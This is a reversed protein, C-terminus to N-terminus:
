QVRSLPSKLGGSLSKYVHIVNGWLRIEKLERLQERYSLHEMSLDEHAEVPSVETCGHREYESGLSSTGGWINRRPSLHPSPDDGEVQQCGTIAQCPAALRQWLVM